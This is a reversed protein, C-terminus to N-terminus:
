CSKLYVRKEEYKVELNDGPQCESDFELRCNYGREIYGPTTCGQDVVEHNYELRFKSSELKEGGQEYSVILYGTKNHSPDANKFEDQRFMEEHVVDNNIFELCIKIKDPRSPNISKCSDYVDNYDLTRVLEITDAFVAQSQELQSNAINGRMYFMVNLVILVVIIFLM